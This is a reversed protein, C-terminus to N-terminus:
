RGAQTLRAVEANADAESYHHSLPVPGQFVRWIQGQSPDAKVVAFKAAEPTRSWRGDAGQTVHGEDALGQLLGSGDRLRLNLAEEVERTTLRAPGITKLAAIQLPYM